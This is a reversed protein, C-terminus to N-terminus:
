ACYRSSQRCVKVDDTKYCKEVMRKCKPYSRRMRKIESKPLIPGYKKDEAMDAYYQNQVLADVIGNGILVSELNISSSDDSSRNIIVKGIEPLYHGAYSEGSLHFTSQSYQPHSAFLIRLFVYVNEAAQRSSKVRSTGYSFGTGVPQDLFILHSQQNWSFPNIVTSKGDRDVKCPGLEMLLGTFSSCGPGGNLWLTVPTEPNSANTRAEFLWFFYSDKEGDMEVDLYGTVQNVSDCLDVNRKVRLKYAPFEDLAFVESAAEPTNENQMELLVATQIFSSLLFIINTLLLM